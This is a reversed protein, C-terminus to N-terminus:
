IFYVLITFLITIFGCVMGNKMAYELKKDSFMVLKYTLIGVLCFGFLYGLAFFILLMLYNTEINKM